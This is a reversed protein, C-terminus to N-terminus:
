LCALPPERYYTLPGSLRAVERSYTRVCVCMYTYVCVRVCLRPIAVYVVVRLSIRLLSARARASRALPHSRTLLLSASSLPRISSGPSLHFLSFSPPLLSVFPTPPPSSFSPDSTQGRSRAKCASADSCTSASFCFSAFTAFSFTTSSISSSATATTAVFPLHRLLPRRVPPLSPLSFPLPLTLLEQLAIM